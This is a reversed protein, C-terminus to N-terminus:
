QERELERVNFMDASLGQNAKFNELSIVTFHGNEASHAELHM